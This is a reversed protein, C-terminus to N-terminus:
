RLQAFLARYEKLIHKVNTGKSKLVHKWYIKIMDLGKQVGEMDRKWNKTKEKLFYDM